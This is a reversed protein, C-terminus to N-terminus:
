RIVGGAARAMSLARSILRKHAEVYSFRGGKLYHFLTAYFYFWFDPTLGKEASDPPGFEVREEGDKRKCGVTYDPRRNLIEYVLTDPHCVCLDIIRAQDRPIGSVIADVPVFGPAFEVADEGRDDEGWHSFLIVVHIENDFFQQWFDEVTLRTRIHVGLKRM